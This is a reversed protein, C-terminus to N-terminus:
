QFAQGVVRRAEATTFPKTLRPAGTQELFASTEASLTDGTLFIFQRLLHPQHKALEQYLAPGDLEPMRLDCLILDFPKEQLKVLALRGNGATDVQYGDRRLLYALAHRIGTEDDVILITKGQEPPPETPIPAASLLTPARGVPMEILFSAGHGSQSQVSITGGHGEIIGRCLSLGLGTGIGVPKTTFFPEFIPEQFAAPIGPGTDVVQLVVQHREPDARTTLTLRRPSPVERLAHHANTALNIVVQRLQHLDAWLTPLDEALSLQVEINDLRLSSALIEVTDTILINLDVQTREPPHQRALALFNQVIRACREAAQVIKSAHEAQSSTEAEEKLLGAEVVVVSLPNNLEHAIGALLSGMAALKESQALGEQLHAESRRPTQGAQLREGTTEALLRQQLAEYVQRQRTETEELEVIRQRLIALEQALAVRDQPTDMANNDM